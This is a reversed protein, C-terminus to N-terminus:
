WQTKSSNHRIRAANSTQILNANNAITLTGNNTIADTVSLNIGSDVTLSTSANLTLSKVNTSSTIYPSFTGTAVTVRKNSNPAGYPTWNAAENWLSNASGNWAITGLSNNGNTNIYAVDTASIEGEYLAVNDVYARTDRANSGFQNEPTVNTGDFSQGKFSLLVSANTWNQLNAGTDNNAATFRLVNDVYIKLDGATNVTVVVKYDTNFGIPKVASSNPGSGNGDGFALQGDWERIYLQRITNSSGNHGIFTLFGLM